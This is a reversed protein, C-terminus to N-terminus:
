RLYIFDYFFSIHQVVYCRVVGSSVTDFDTLLVSRMNTTRAMTTIITIIIITIIIINGNLLCHLFFYYVQLYHPQEAM